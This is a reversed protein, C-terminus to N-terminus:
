PAALCARISAALGRTFAARGFSEAHRRIAAVDWARGACQRVADSLADVSQTEFFLGTVGSEVTELAGGRAFAIVPRGCAQAELPVIGFDEEGPFVLAGCRRYLDLIIEDPQWGLLEVTPGAMRRLREFEGGVGVIKLPRQLRNYTEIALDIRKYPVLASVVLDFEAAATCSGPTWRDTEVPPYVVDASRGYFRRIREQIHRSIATFHTVQRATRRDWVRLAALLPALALRKLPNRGFYEERFTWAYRM